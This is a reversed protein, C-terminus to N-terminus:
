HRARMSIFAQPPAQARARLPHPPPPRAVGERFGPPQRALHPTKGMVLLQPLTVNAGVRYVGPPFYLIPMATPLGALLAAVDTAGDGPVGMGVVSSDELCGVLPLLGPQRVLASAPIRGASTPQSGIPTVACRITPAPM